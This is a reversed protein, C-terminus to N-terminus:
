GSRWSPFERSKKKKSTELDTPKNKNKIKKNAYLKNLTTDIEATYCLSRTMCTYVDKEYELLNSM